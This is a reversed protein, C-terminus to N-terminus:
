RIYENATAYSTISTIDYCLLEIESLRKLWLSLFHQRADETIHQLLESVRQSRIAKVYPHEHSESWMECRSLALGKQALFFALSSIEKYIAPFSKQLATTLGTDKALKMLLLNPGYVKTSATVEGAVAARKVTHEKRKSPIVEGTEENLRGLCVQKNRPSKKEKDWYSKVSYVYAAGNKKRHITTSPM